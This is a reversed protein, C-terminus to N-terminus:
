RSKDEVPGVEPDIWLVDESGDTDRDTDSDSDDDVASDNQSKFTPM